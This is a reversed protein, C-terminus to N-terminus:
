RPRCFVPPEGRQPFRDTGTPVSDHKPVTESRVAVASSLSLRSEPRNDSIASPADAETPTDDVMTAGAQQHGPESGDRCMVETTPRTPEPSRDRSSAPLVQNPLLLLAFATTICYPQKHPSNKPPYSGASRSIPSRGSRTSRRRTSSTSPGKWSVHRVGHGHGPHLLGPPRLISFGDLHHSVVPPGTHRQSAACRLWSSATPPVPCVETLATSPRLIGPSSTMVVAFGHPDTASCPGASDLRESSAFLNM